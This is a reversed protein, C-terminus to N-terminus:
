SSFLIQIFSLIILRIFDGYSKHFSFNSDYILDLKSYNKLTAKEM